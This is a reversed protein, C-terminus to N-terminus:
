AIIIEALSKKSDPVQKSKLYKTPGRHTLIVNDLEGAEAMQIAIERDVRGMGKVEYGIVQRSRSKYIASIIRLPEGWDPSEDKVYAGFHNDTVAKSYAVCIKLDDGQSYIDASSIDIIKWWSNHGKIPTEDIRRFADADINKPSKRGGLLKHAIAPGLPHNTTTEIVWLGIDSHNIVRGNVIGM